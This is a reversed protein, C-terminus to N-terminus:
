KELLPLLKGYGETEMDQKLIFRLAVGNMCYRLGTKDQPGDNFLHGLHSDGGKSRIEVRESFLKHDKKKVLNNQFPSDYFSPWGTGSDYKHISLYLPEGSVKDVYIGPEYNKDLPSSGSYETGDEQTIRYEDPSLKAKLEENSYVIEKKSKWDMVAKGKIPTSSTLCGTLTLIITWIITKSM